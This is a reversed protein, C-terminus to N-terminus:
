LLKEFAIRKSSGDVYIIGCYKFQNKKIVNQMSTNEKHTDIKISYVGRDVCFKEIHKIIETSLGLGKHRNDVAIRHIAAYKGNSLWKGDYIVDYSAEGKFTVMSTAIVRGDEELVYSEDNKIDEIITDENPYGDQWQDIGKGKLFEKAQNIIEMIERVDNIRARRFKM